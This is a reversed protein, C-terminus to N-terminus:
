EHGGLREIEVYIWCKRVGLLATASCDGTSMLGLKLVWSGEM